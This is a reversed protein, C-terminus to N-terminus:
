KMPNQKAILVKKPGNRLCPLQAGSWNNLMASDFMLCFILVM